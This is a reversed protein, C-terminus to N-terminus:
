INKRIFYIIIILVILTLAILFAVFKFDINKRKKIDKNENLENIEDKTLIKDEETSYEKISKSALENFDNDYIMLSKGNEYYPAYIIFREKELAEYNKSIINGQKDVEIIRKQNLFDFFVVDLENDDKDLIFISYNGFSNIEDESFFIDVNNIKFNGNNYDAEVEYYMLPEQLGLVLGILLPLIALIIKKDV